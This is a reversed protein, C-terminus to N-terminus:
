KATKAAEPAVGKFYVKLALKSKITYPPRETSSTMTFGETTLVRPHGALANLLAQYSRFSALVTVDIPRAQIAPAAQPAASPDTAKPKPDAPKDTAPAAPATAKGPSFSVLNVGSAKMVGELDTLAAALEQESPVAALAEDFELLEADCQAKFADYAEPTGIIAELDANERSKAQLMTRLSATEAAKARVMAFEGGAALLVGIGAGALIARVATSKYFPTAPATASTQTRM